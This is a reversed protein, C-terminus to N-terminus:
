TRQDFRMSTEQIIRMAPRLPDWPPVPRGCAGGARPSIAVDTQADLIAPIDLFPAHTGPRTCMSQVSGAPAM